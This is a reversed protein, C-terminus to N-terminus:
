KKKGFYYYAAAAGGLLILLLLLMLFIGIMDDAPEPPKIPESPAAPPAPETPEAPPAAPPITLKFNDTVPKGDLTAPKDKAPDCIGDGNDYHLMAILNTVNGNITIGVNDNDGIFVDSYGFVQGVTGDANVEHIVICGPEDSYSSDITVTSDKLEQDSANISPPKTINAPGTEPPPVEVPPPETPPVEEVECASHTYPLVLPFYKNKTIYLKYDGEGKSDFTFSGSSNTLNIQVDITSLYILKVEANELASIGSTVNVQIKGSPCVKGAEASIPKKSESTGPSTTPQPGTLIHYIKGSFVPVLDTLSLTNSGADLIGNLDVWSTNYSYLELGAESYTFAEADTWHWTISDLIATGSERTINLSKGAFSAYPPSPPVQAWTILYRGGTEVEDDLTLSTYNVLNGLPNDFIVESLNLTFSFAPDSEVKLDVDNNFYHDGTVTTNDSYYVYLGYGYPSPWSNGSATNNILANNTSRYLFGGHGCQTHSMDNGELVNDGGYELLIASPSLMGTGYYLLMFDLEESGIESKPIRFECTQHKYSVKSTLGFACKGYEDYYDDIRFAKNGEPTRFTIEAWDEGYENTNDPTIDLSIYVNEDDQSTYVYVYGEPHGSDFRWFVTYTPTEIGDTEDLKGDIVPVATDHSVTAYGADPFFLPLIATESCSDPIDWSVEIEREHAVIVNSDIELIDELVSEGSDVYRAYKPLIEQGCATLQAAEVDAFPVSGNQVIRVTIHDETKSFRFEKTAYRVPFPACYVEEWTGSSGLQSLHYTTIICQFTANNGSLTNNSSYQLRIGYYGNENATNGVLRNDDAYSLYFGALNNGSANNGIISTSDTFSLYVGHQFYGFVHNDTINNGIGASALRIGFTSGGALTNGHLINGTSNSGAMYIGVPSGSVNNDNILSNGGDYIYFGNDSNSNVVNVSLNNGVSDYLFFGHDQNGSANNASLANYDSSYAIYFGSQNNDYANNGSLTNSDSNSSSFGSMNNSYANNDMVFGNHAYGFYFGNYANNYAENDTLNNSVSSQASFGDRDNNHATNNVFTNSNCSSSLSFGTQGNDRAVNDTLTNYNSNASLTFGDLGMEYATNNLVDNNDSDYLIFGTTCNTVTNNQILSDNTYYLAIGMYSMNSVQCNRITVNDEEHVYIGIANGTNNYTISYGKCDFEVDSSDIHICADLVYTPPLANPAGYLSANLEYEGPVNIVQCSSVNTAAFSIGSFFLVLIM